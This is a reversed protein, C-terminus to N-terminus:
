KTGETPNEDGDPVVFRRRITFEVTRAVDDDLGPEITVPEGHCEPCAGPRYSTTLTFTDPVHYRDYLIAGRTEASQWEHGKECRLTVNRATGTAFPQATM